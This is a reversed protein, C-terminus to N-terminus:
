QKMAEYHKDEKYSHFAVLAQIATIMLAYSDTLKGFAALTTGAIAFFLAFFTHRGKAFTFIKGMIGTTYFDKAKEAIAPSNTQSM